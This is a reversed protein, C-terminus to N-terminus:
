AAASPLPRSIAIANPWRYQKSQRIPEKKSANIARLKHGTARNLLIGVELLLELLVISLFLPLITFPYNSSEPLNDKFAASGKTIV